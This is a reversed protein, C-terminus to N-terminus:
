NGCGSGRLTSCPHVLPRPVGSCTSTGFSALCNWMMRTKGCFVDWAVGVGYLFWTVFGAIFGGHLNAWLLMMLPLQWWRQLKGARLQDLVLMWGALFLFTIVHPRILWHVTSTAMVFFGVLLVILISQRELRFRQYVLWLASAIVVACLLVVGGLGLSREVFAFLVQSLWKHQAAPQGALTHSFVDQLPIKRYDLVYRGMSLHLPLDGDHNMLQRGYIIVILFATIWLLDGFSPLFYNIFKSIHNKM